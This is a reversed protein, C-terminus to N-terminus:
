FEYKSIFELHSCALLGLGNLLLLLLILENLVTEIGGNDGEIIVRAIM